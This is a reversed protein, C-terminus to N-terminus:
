WQAFISPRFAFKKTILALFYKKLATAFTNSPERYLHPRKQCDKKAVRLCANPPTFDSIPGPFLLSLYGDETWDGM